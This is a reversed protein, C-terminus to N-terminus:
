GGRPSIIVIRASVRGVAAVMLPRIRAMGCCEISRLLVIVGIWRGIQKGVVTVVICSREGGGPCIM